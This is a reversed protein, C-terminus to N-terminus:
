ENTLKALEQMTRYAEDGKLVITNLVQTMIFYHDIEKRIIDETSFNDLIEFQGTVVTNTNSRKGM